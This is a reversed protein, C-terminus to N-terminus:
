PYVLRLFVSGNQVDLPVSFINTLQSGPVAVWNTNLGSNLSNTQIELHWGFHDAAWFLQLQGGSRQSGLLPPVLSPASVLRVNDLFVTNDGGLLDTGVFALTHTAATATFNTTYDLYNTASASSSFNKVVSNDLKLNWTQGGNQYTARQAAAFTMTYKLGPIFGSVAQSVVGTGQLFASQIGQPVNPNGTNFLSNNATIGSGNAGSQASFTWSGGSPNYQYSGINPTEFGFNM